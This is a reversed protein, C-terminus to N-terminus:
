FDISQFYFGDAFDWGEQFIYWFPTFMQCNRFLLMDHISFINFLVREKRGHSFSDFTFDTFEELYVRTELVGHHMDFKMVNVKSSTEINQKVKEWFFFFHFYLFFTWPYLAIYFTQTSVVISIGGILIRGVDCFSTLNKIPLTTKTRQSTIPELKFRFHPTLINKISFYPKSLINSVVVVKYM